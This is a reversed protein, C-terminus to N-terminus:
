SVAGLPSRLKALVRAASVDGKALLALVDRANGQLLRDFGDSAPQSGARTLLAKAKPANGADLALLTFAYFTPVAPGQPDLAMAKDFWRISEAKKAGLATGAIFSGLTAVSEGHWGGLAALALPDGPNKAIAAEIGAKAQRALGPSNELKARYGVTIAQQLTAPQNGPELKLASAFDSEALLLMQKAKVKDATNYAALTSTARGGAIRGSATPATRGVLAAEAFRGAALAQEAQGPQTEAAISTMMALSAIMSVFLTM